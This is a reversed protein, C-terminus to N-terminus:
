SLQTTQDPFPRVKPPSPFGETRPLAVRRNASSSLPNHPTSSQLFAEDSYSSLRGPTLTDAPHGYRPGSPFPSAVRVLQRSFLSAPMCSAKTLTALMQSLVTECRSFRLSLAQLAPSPPIPRALSPAPSISLILLRLM